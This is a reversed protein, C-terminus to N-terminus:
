AAAEALRAFHRGRHEYSEYMDYSSCAPSLLVIDGSLASNQTALENGVPSWAVCQVLRSTLEDPAPLRKRSVIDWLYLRGESDSCALTRRGIEPSAPM